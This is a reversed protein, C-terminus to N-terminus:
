FKFTRSLNLMKQLGDNLANELEYNWWQAVNECGERFNIKYQFGLSEGNHKPKFEFSSTYLKMEFETPWLYEKIFTKNNIVGQEKVPELNFGNKIKKGIYIIPKIRALYENFPSFLLWTIMRKIFSKKNSQTIHNVIEDDPLLKIEDETKSAKAHEHYFDYWNIRESNIGYLLSPLQSKEIILTYILRALDDVHIAYCLSPDKKPLYIITDKTRSLAIISWPILPGYVIGPRIICTQIKSSANCFIKETEIKAKTYWDKELSYNYPNNMVNQTIQPPLVVISSLHILKSINNNISALAINKAITINSEIKKKNSKQIDKDIICNVVIDCKDLAKNLSLLDNFDVSVVDLNAYRALRVGVSGRTIIRLAINNALLRETLWAGIVGSAGLIAIKM